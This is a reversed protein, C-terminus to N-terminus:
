SLIEKMLEDPTTSRCLGAAFEKRAEQIDAALVKRGREAKRRHLIEILTEQDELPLKDIAELVEGFPLVQEM